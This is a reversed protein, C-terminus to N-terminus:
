PRPNRASVVRAHKIEITFKSRRTDYSVLKFYPTKIKSIRLIRNFYNFKRKWCECTCLGAKNQLITDYTQGKKRMERIHIRGDHFRSSFNRYFISNTSDNQLRNTGKAFTCNRAFEVVNKLLSWKVCLRAEDMKIM